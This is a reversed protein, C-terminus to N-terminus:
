EELNLSWVVFGFVAILSPVVPLDLVVVALAGVLGMAAVYVIRETM